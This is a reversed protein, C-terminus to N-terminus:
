TSHALTRRKRLNESCTVWELNLVSNNTKDHDIHNVQPAELPLFARAVLRHVTKVHRQNNKDLHVIVYGSNQLKTSILNAPIPRKARRGNRLNNAQMKEPARVRGLSSVEYLGEFGQIPLWTEM